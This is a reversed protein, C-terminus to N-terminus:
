THCPTITMTLRQDDLYNLVVQSHGQAIGSLVPLCRAAPNGIRLSELKSDPVTTITQTGSPGIEVTLKCMSQPMPHPTLVMAVAFPAVIPRAALLPKPPPLDYAVLLVSNNQDQCLTGAELVGGCFSSDYCSLSTSLQQSQVAISWYGAAANHVSHHFLTPSIAPDPHTLTDCIKHLIETEGGSTCFVSALDQPKLQSQQVADQAVQLAWRVVSSSRRLENPQLCSPTPDSLLDSVHGPHHGLIVARTTDWDSFWPGRVGIGNVYLDMM